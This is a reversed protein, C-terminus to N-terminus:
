IDYTVDENDTSASDVRSESDVVSNSYEDDSSIAPAVSIAAAAATATKVKTNAKKRKSAMSNNYFPSDKQNPLEDIYDVLEQGKTSLTRCKQIVKWVDQLHPVYSSEYLVEDYVVTKESYVDLRWYRVSSKVWGDVLLESAKDIIWQEIVGKEYNAALPYPIYKNRVDGESIVKSFSIVLGKENGFKNLNISPINTNKIRKQHTPNSLDLRDALMEDITLYPKYQMGLTNCHVDVITAEVFDCIPINTTFQQQLIQIMYDPKIKDDIERSYPNKIELLRGYRSIADFTGLTVDTVIGDPSAGICNVRSNLLGYESVVVGHRSEYIARVVDEYTNGHVLPKANSAPYFKLGVKIKLTDLAKGAGCTKLFYGADSASILGERQKFWEPSKQEATPIAAIHECVAKISAKYEHNIKFILYKEISEDLNSVINQPNDLLKEIVRSTLIDKYKAFTYVYKYDYMRTKLLNKVQMPMEKILNDNINNIEIFINSDNIVVSKSMKSIPELM